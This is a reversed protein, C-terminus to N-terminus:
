QYLLIIGQVYYKVTQLCFNDLNKPAEFKIYFM